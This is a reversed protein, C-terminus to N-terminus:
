DRVLSSLLTRLPMAPILSGRLQFTCSFPYLVCYAIQFHIQKGVNGKREFYDVGSATDYEPLVAPLPIDMLDM